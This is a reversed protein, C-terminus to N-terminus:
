KPEDEPATLWAGCWPCHTIPIYTCRFMGRGSHFVGCWGGDGPLYIIYKKRRPREWEYCLNECGAM